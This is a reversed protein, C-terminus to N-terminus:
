GTTNTDEENADIVEPEITDAVPTVDATFGLVAHFEDYTPPWTSVGQGVLHAYWMHTAITDGVYNPVRKGDPTKYLESPVVVERYLKTGKRYQKAHEPTYGAPYELTLKRNAM